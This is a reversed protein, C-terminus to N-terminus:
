TREKGCMRFIWECTWDNGCKWFRGLYGRYNGCKRSGPPTVRLTGVNLGALMGVREM